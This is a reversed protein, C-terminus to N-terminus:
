VFQSFAFNVAFLFIPESFNAKFIPVLNYCGTALNGFKTYTRDYNKIVRSFVNQWFCLKAVLNRLARRSVNKEKKTALNM